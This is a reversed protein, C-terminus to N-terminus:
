KIYNFLSMSKVQSFVQQSAQLAASQISLNSIATYVDVDQVSSLTSQFAVNLDGYTNQQGQLTNMRGGISVETGSVSAQVRDLSEIQRNLTNTVTVDNAGPDSLVAIMNNLTSFVDQSQGAQVSMTDGVAPMGSMSITMGNFAISGGDVYTGGVPNGSGDLVPNGSGDQATWSGGAGFTIAYSGGSAVSAAKWAVPDTVSNDGVVLTGTNTAGGTAVFRGNGAPIDMFLASGADSTPTQLGPGISAKLQTDNGIYSVAGSADKVFPIASTSTGAFLANGNSDATNALQVLNDRMQVLQSAMDQRDTATMSGNIGQLAISRASDLLNNVSGLTTQETSLRNTASDINTSYQANAALIHNLSVVQGAGAPDDSAVNIRKQTTVQNQTAALSSQQSLMSSLSQQYMWSTSLRM